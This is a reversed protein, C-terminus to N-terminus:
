RQVLPFLAQTVAFTWVGVRQGQEDIYWVDASDGTSLTRGMGPGIALAGAEDSWGYVTYVAPGIHFDVRVPRSPPVKGVVQNGIIDMFAQIPAIPVQISLRGNDAELVDGPRIDAGFQGEARFVRGTAPNAAVTKVEKVTGSASRLTMTVLRGPDTWLEVNDYTQHVALRLASQLVGIRHGAPNAQEVLVRDGAQLDLSGAYEMTFGGNAGSQGARQDWIGLEPPHEVWISLEANPLGRMTLRDAPPDIDVSLADVPIDIAQQGDSLRVRDGFLVQAPLVTWPLYSYPDSLATKTAKLIGGADYLTITVNARYDLGVGYVASETQNVTIQPAYHDVLMWDGDAHQWWVRFRDGARMRLIDDFPITYAGGADSLASKQHLHEEGTHPDRRIIEGLVVSSAPAIGSLHNQAVSARASLPVLQLQARRGRCCELVIRDGERLGGAPWWDAFGAPNSRVNTNEKLTGAGDYLSITADSNRDFWSLVRGQRTNAALVPQRFKFYNINGQADTHYLSGDDGDRLDYGTLPINASGAADTQFNLYVSEAQQTSYWGYLRASPPGHVLLRDTDIQVQATVDLVEVTTTLQGAVRVRQGPLVDHTFYVEFTGATEHARLAHEELVAGAADLLAVQVEEGPNVVGEVRDSYQDVLVHRPRVYIEAASINDGVTVWFEDGAVLDVIDGFSVRFSGATDATVHRVYWEVGTPGPHSVVVRVRRGAPAHGSVTDAAINVNADLAPVPATVTQTATVVVQDGPVIDAPTGEGFILIYGGDTLNTTTSALGKLEGVASYLAGQVVIGPTDYGVVEDFQERIRPRPAFAHKEMWLDGAAFIVRAIDAPLIDVRGAFSASYAGAFNANLTLRQGYVTISLEAYPLAMGLVRDTPIDLTTTMPPIVARFTEAGTAIVVEDGAQIDAPIAGPGKIGGAHFAGQFFGKSDADVLDHGKEQKAPDLLRMSVAGPVGVTGYVRNY